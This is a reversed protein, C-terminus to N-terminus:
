KLTARVADRVLPWTTTAPDIMEFHGSEGAEIVTIQRDSRARAARVYARGNPAWTTDHRGFILRQPVGIPAFSLPSADRYRTPFEAPGGGMLQGASNGCNAEEFMMTLEPVPALGVVGIIDLPSDEHLESEPLQQSRAAVWLALHGGASHGMSMVQTLDLPYIEALESLYDIGHGADLFTGPWGAGENGIRRYEISWVAAGLETLAHAIPRSNTLDGYAALWCGGHFYAIVPFPGPGDPLYLEGFQWKDSGYYIKEGPEAHSLHELEEATMVTPATFARAGLLLLVGLIWLWLSSM